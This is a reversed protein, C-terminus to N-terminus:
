ISGTQGAPTARASGSRNAAGARKASLMWASPFPPPAILRSTTALVGGSLPRLPSQGSGQSASSTQMWAPRCRLHRRMLTQAQVDEAILGNRGAPRYIATTGVHGNSGDAVDSVISHAQGSLADHDASLLSCIGAPVPSSVSTGGFADLWGAAARLGCRRFVPRWGHRYGARQAHDGLWRERHSGLHQNRAAAPLRSAVRIVQQRDGAWSSTDGM